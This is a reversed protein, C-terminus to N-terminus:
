NRFLTPKDAYWFCRVMARVPYKLAIYICNWGSDKSTTAKNIQGGIVKAQLIASGGGIAIVHAGYAAPPRLITQDSMWLTTYSPITIGAFSASFDFNGIQEIHVIGAGLPSANNLAAQLVTELTGSASILSGDHKEAYYTSGIKYVKTRGAYSSPTRGVWASGTNYYDKGTDTEQFITNVPEAAATPKSDTSLGTIRGGAKRKIAM